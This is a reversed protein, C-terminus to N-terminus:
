FGQGTAQDKFAYEKRCGYTGEGTQPACRLYGAYKYWLRFRTANDIRLIPAECNHKAILLVLKRSVIKSQYLYNKKQFFPPRGILHCEAEPAM